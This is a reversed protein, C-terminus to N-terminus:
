FPQHGFAAKFREAVTARDARHNQPGAQEIKLAGLVSALRGSALLDMGTALGYLLGARYADGCGTPDVTARAAVAPVDHTKGGEFLTSGQAGRTVILARVRRALDELSVGTREVLLQSEYENVAVYAAREIFWSLEQGDFMPLGQGPDFVFPIGREALERAHQLMGDRGDPAIIALGIAEGSPIPNVHSHSMAGPHFAAIQNDDLDTTIFAQATYTGAIQRVQSRDIGLADFRELYPGADDGVTGMPLPDGGLQKLSYAINGATGGFERRLEPVLFSVSLMHVRDPLIHDKFRGQFVMISDFAISGCILTRV